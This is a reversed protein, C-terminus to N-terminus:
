SYYETLTDTQKKRLDFFENMQKGSINPDKLADNLKKGMLLYHDWKAVDNPSVAEGEGSVGMLIMKWLMVYWERKMQVDVDPDEELLFVGFAIFFLASVADEPKIQSLEKEMQDLSKLMTTHSRFKIMGMLEGARPIGRTTKVIPQDEEVTYILARGIKGQLVENDLLPLGVRSQVGNQSKRDVEFPLQVGFHSPTAPPSTSMPRNLVHNPRVSDVSQHESHIVPSLNSSAPDMPPTAGTISITPPPRSKPSTPAAFVGLSVGVLHDFVSSRLVLALLLLRLLSITPRIPRLPQM